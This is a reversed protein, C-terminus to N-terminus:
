SLTSNNSNCNRYYFSPSYLEPAHKHCFAKGPHARGYCSKITCPSTNSHKRCFRREMGYVSIAYKQCDPYSCIKKHFMRRLKACSKCYICGTPAIKKCNDGHCTKNSLNNNHSLQYHNACFDSNMLAKSQCRKQICRRTDYRLGNYHNICFRSFRNTINKCNQYQCRQLKTHSFCYNMGRSRTKLCDPADCTNTDIIIDHITITNTNSNNLLFSQFQCQQKEQERLEENQLSLLSLSVQPQPQSQIFSLFMQSQLQLPTLGPLPQLPSQLPQLPSQLPQLPSQLPQLPSQLPQLPSQLPPPPPPHCLITQINNNHYYTTTSSSSHGPSSLPRRPSSSSSSWPLSFQSSHAM